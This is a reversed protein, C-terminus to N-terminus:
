ATCIIEGHIVAFWGDDAAAWTRWAEAIDELQQQTALGDRVAQAGIASTTM